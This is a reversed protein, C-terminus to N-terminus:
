EGTHRYSVFSVRASIDKGEAGDVEVLANASSPCFTTFRVSEVLMVNALFCSFSLFHTLSLQLSVSM